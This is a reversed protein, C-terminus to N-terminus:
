KCGMPYLFWFGLFENAYTNSVITGHEPGPTGATADPRQAGALSAVLVSGVVFHFWARKM